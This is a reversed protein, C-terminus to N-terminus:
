ALAQKLSFLTVTTLTAFAGILVGRGRHRAELTLAMFFTKDDLEALDCELWGLAEASTFALEAAYGWQGLLGLLAAQWPPDDGGGLKM